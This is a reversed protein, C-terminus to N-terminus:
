TRRQLPVSAVNTVRRQHKLKVYYYVIEDKKKPWKFRNKAVMTCHLMNTTIEDDTIKTICGPFWEGEFVVAVYDNVVYDNVNISNVCEYVIDLENQGDNEDESDDDSCQTRRKM